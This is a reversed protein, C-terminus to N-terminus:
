VSAVTRLRLGPLARTPSSRRIAELMVRYRTPADAPKPWGVGEPRDGHATLWKESEEVIEITTEQSRENGRGGGVTPLRRAERSLRGIGAQIEGATGPHRGERLEDPYRHHVSRPRIGACASPLTFPQTERLFLDVGNNRFEAKDYLARGGIANVFVDANEQRCIESFGFSRKRRIGGVAVGFVREEFRREHRVVAGGAVFVKGRQVRDPDSDRFCACISRICQKNLASLYTTEGSVAKEIEGM